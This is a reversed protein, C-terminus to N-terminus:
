IIIKKIITTGCCCSMVCRISSTHSSMPVKMSNYSIWGFLYPFDLDFDFDFDEENIMQMYVNVIVVLISIHSVCHIM